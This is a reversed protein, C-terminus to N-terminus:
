TGLLLQQQEQLAHAHFFGRSQEEAPPPSPKLGSYHGAAFVGPSIEIDYGHIWIMEVAEQTNIPVIYPIVGSQFIALQLNRKHTLGYDYLIRTTHDVRLESTSTHALPAKNEEKNADEVPTVEPDLALLAAFEKQASPSTSIAFLEDVTPVPLDMGYNAISNKLAYLVCRAGESETPIIDYGYPFAQTFEAQIKEVASLEVKQYVDDKALPGDKEHHVNDEDSPKHVTESSDFVDQTAELTIPNSYASVDAASPPIAIITKPQKSKSQLVPVNVWDCNLYKLANLRAKM